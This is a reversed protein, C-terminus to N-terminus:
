SFSIEVIPQTTIVIGSDEDHLADPTDFSVSGYIEGNQQAIANSGQYGKLEASFISDMESLPHLASPNGLVVLSNGEKWVSIRDILFKERNAKMINGVYVGLGVKQDLTIPLNAVVAEKIM